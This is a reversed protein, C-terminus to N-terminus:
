KKKLFEWVSIGNKKVLGRSVFGANKFAQISSGNDRKVHAVVTRVPTESFLKRCGLEILLPGYGFGRAGRDVSVDVEASRSNLSDFRIQGVPHRVGNSAIFIQSGPRRLRRKFWLKHATWPIRKPSFSSQRVSLDNAWRYLLRADSALAKRLSVTKKELVSLVRSTGLGDVLSQGRRSMLSRKSPNGLLAEIKKKLRSSSFRRFSGLNEAARARALSQAIKEQNSALVFNLQPVGMYALELSTTGAGSIALDAWTELPAMNQVDWVPVLSGGKGKSQQFDKKDCANSSLIFRIELNKDKVELLSRFVKEVFQDPNFGGFTVLIRTAKKVAQKREAWRRRIEKRILFYESGLLLDTGKSVNGYSLRPAYINQNLVVDVSYSKLHRYDDFMMVRLGKNKLSQLYSEDFPYGDVILWDAKKLDMQRSVFDIEDKLHRFRSPIKCLSFGESKIKRIAWPSSEKTLFISPGSKRNEQALALCRM